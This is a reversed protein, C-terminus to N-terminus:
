GMWEQQAKSACEIKLARLEKIRARRKKKAKTARFEAPMRDHPKVIASERSVDREDDSSLRPLGGKVGREQSLRKRWDTLSENM